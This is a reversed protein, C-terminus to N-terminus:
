TFKEMMGVPILKGRKNAPLEGHNDKMMEPTADELIGWAKAIEDIHISYCTDDLVCRWLFVIEKNWYGGGGLKQKRFETRLRELREVEVVISGWEEVTKSTVKRCKVELVTTWKGHIWVQVDYPLAHEQKTHVCRVPTVGLRQLHKEYQFTALHQEDRDATDEYLPM